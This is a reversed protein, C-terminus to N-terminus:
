IHKRGPNNLNANYQGYAIRTGTLSVGDGTISFDERTQTDGRGHAVNDETIWFETPLTFDYTSGEGITVPIKKPSAAMVPTALMAAATLFVAIVLVKKNLNRV